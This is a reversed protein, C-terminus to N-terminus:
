SKGIGNPGAIRLAGGPALELSVGSFLERDGRRCALDKARLRCAQMARRKPSLIPGALSTPARAQGLAAKRDHFICRDAPLFAMGMGWSVSVSLIAASASRGPQVMRPYLAAIARSKSNWSKLSAKAKMARTARSAS